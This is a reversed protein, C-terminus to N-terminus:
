FDFQARMQYIDAKGADDLDARVYNWMLRMNPNIYWNLGVTLNRLRGGEIPDDNLDLESHRLAVEWAGLGSGEGRFNSRPAVRGLVGTDRIYPRHEGTLFYSAYIYYGDLEADGAHPFEETELLDVRSRHYEAQISAPGRTAAFELAFLDVRDSPIDGTGIFSPAVSSEPRTGVSYVADDPKRRVYSVGLHTWTRGEDRYIPAGTLRASVLHESNTDSDGFADTSKFAGVAWTARQNLATNNFAIGTNWYGNFAAPLGREMFTHYSNGSLQELSHTQLMRGLRMTGLVPINRLGLYADRFSSQGGAFDYEVRFLGHEHLTGSFYIRARRFKTGSRLEGVEDVVDSEADFAAFDNQVRGGIRLLIANDESQLRIGNQWSAHLPIAAADRQELQAIRAELAELRDSAAEQAAAPRHMSTLGITVSIAMLIFRKTTM